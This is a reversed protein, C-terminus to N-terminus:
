LDTVDRVNGFLPCEHFAQRALADRDEFVVALDRRDGVDALMLVPREALALDDIAADDTRPVAVFVSGVSSGRRRREGLLDGGEVHSDNGAADVNVRPRM